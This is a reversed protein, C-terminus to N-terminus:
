TIVPRYSHKTPREVPAQCACTRNYQCQCRCQCGHQMMQHPCGGGMQFPMYMPVTMMKSQNMMMSRYDNHIKEREYEDEKRKLLNSLDKLEGKLSRYESEKAEQRKTWEKMERDLSENEYKYQSTALNDYKKTVHFNLHDLV